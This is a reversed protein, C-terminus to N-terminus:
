LFPAGAEQLQELWRLWGIPSQGAAFAVGVAAQSGATAVWRVLGEVTTALPGAGLRLAVAEGPEPPVGSWRLGCGEDSVSLTQMYRLGHSRLVAPLRAALRPARQHFRVARGEAADVLLRIAKQGSPDPAFEVRHGQNTHLVSGVQGLVTAGLGTGELRLRAACRAGLRPSAPAEFLLHATRPRWAEVLGSPTFQVEYTHM